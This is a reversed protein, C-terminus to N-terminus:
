RCEDNAEQEQACLAAVNHRAAAAGHTGIYVALGLLLLDQVLYPVSHYVNGAFAILNSIGTSLSLTFAVATGAVAARPMPEGALARLDYLLYVMLSLWALHLSVKHPANMPTFQDFYTFCLLLAFSLITGYGCLLTVHVPPKQALFRLAFYIVGILLTLLGVFWLAAPLQLADGAFCGEIFNIMFLLACIGAACIGPLTPAPLATPLVNKKIFLPLFAALLLTLVLVAYFAVVVPAATRFYGPHPDFATLLALTRLATTLLAGVAVAIYWARLRLSAKKM